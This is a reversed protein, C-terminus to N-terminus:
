EPKKPINAASVLTAATIEGRLVKANIEMILPRKDWENNKLVTKLDPTILAEPITINVMKGDVVRKVKVKFGKTEGSSVHQIVFEGDIRMETSQEKPKTTIEAAYNGDVSIDSDPINFVDSPKLQHLSNNRFKDIGASLEKVEPAREQTKAMIELKDKELESMQVRSKIEAKREQHALWSKWAITSGWTLAVGLVSYLIHVSEMNSIAAKAAETLVESLNTDYKSSGKDVKVNLELKQRDDFKLKRLNQEGYRLQCYLRHIEKQADLLSPMIRTPVSQDFDHGIYHLDLRPWGDFKINLPQDLEPDNDLAKRLWKWADEESKITIDMAM